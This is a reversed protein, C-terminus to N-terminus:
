GMIITVQEKRKNLVPMLFVPLKSMRSVVLFDIRSMGARLEAVLIMPLFSQLYFVSICTRM